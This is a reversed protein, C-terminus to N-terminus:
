LDWEWIEESDMVVDGNDFDIEAQELKQRELQTLKTFNPDWALVMKKILELALDQDELPLNEMLKTAEIIQATM